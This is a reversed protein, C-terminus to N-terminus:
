KWEAIKIQEIAKAYANITVPLGEQRCYKSWENYSGHVILTTYVSIPSIIQSMFQDCGDNRYAKPNILLADTTRQIDDSILCDTEHDGSCIEGPNPIYAELAESKATIVTFQFKSLNLQVFLPCRIVLTMTGLDLLSSTKQASFYEDQIASLKQSDNSSSLLAVYGKDLCPIKNVLMTIGCGGLSLGFYLSPTFIHKTKAVFAEASGLCCTTDTAV